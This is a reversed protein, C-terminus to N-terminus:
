VPTFPAPLPYPAYHIAPANTIGYDKNHQTLHSLQPFSGAEYGQIAKM